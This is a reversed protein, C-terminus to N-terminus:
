VRVRDLALGAAAASLERARWKSFVRRVAPWEFTPSRTLAVAQKVFLIM